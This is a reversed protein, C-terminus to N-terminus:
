AGGALVLSVTHTTPTWVPVRKGSADTANVQLAIETSAPSDALVKFRLQARAAARGGRGGRARGAPCARASWAAAGGPRLRSRHHGQARRRRARVGHGRIGSRARSGGADRGALALRGAPPRRAALEAPLEAGAQYMLVQRTGLPLYRLVAHDRAVTEVRYTGDLHGRCEGEFSREERALYVFRKGQLEGNGDYKYPLPPAKPAPAVVAIPLQRPPAEPPLNFPDRLAAPWLASRCGFSPRAAPTPLRLRRGRPM